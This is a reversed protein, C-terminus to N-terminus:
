LRLVNIVEQTWLNRVVDISDRTLLAHSADELRSDKGALLGPSVLKALGKSRVKDVNM